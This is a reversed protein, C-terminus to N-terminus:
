VKVPEQVLAPVPAPELDTKSPEKVADPAPLGPDLYEVERKFEGLHM